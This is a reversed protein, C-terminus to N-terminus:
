TGLGALTQWVGGSHVKLTSDHKCWAMWGDQPAVFMWGGGRWSAIQGDQGSWLGSAGTGVAWSQGEDPSAPAANLATSELNLQVVLDLLELAENHTVHKQAQAPMMIPLSLAPTTQSM